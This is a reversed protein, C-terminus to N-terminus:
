TSINVTIIDNGTISNIVITIATTIIGVVKNYNNEISFNNYKKVKNCWFTLKMHFVCVM